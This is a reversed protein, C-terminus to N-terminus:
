LRPMTDPRVERAQAALRIAANPAGFGQYNRRQVIEFFFREEFIHTYVQFFEADGDRDYLIENARLAAITEPPLDYKAELDDYYNDPIDLFGAGRARMEAVSAFIDDCAFAIHQVGSGFFESIFRSSLTRTATSGNLIFRLSRDGNVIAQSQVLGRPDAIEMQPLRSFDILGAYFLLWSLMEEHPMSQAIHDVALLRDTAKDSAVAEFDVDWHRGHTDLFYLLSGGVGHIAPIELEGPGVPQTFTRTKLSQARAMARDASDVDLALACVGPGHTVYHSHAFSAPEFNIVLEIAGQSWRQVAKSRHQGTKRFGLQGFLNALSGAKDESVAFEVFGIGHSKVRPEFRPEAAAPMKGVLDDQLLLLSRMGDLATRPASGARFQDNFIELSLPGSYGTAAVAEMFEGVPLDGQGPFSRFHRSWSLVDLELKPADALQVLFIKDGPIARIANTPLAPALAHFSDLIVGIAKHDARRVIEWADRYDHVHRGWALAEYGVRLGRKAAHEGLEHFDAAARDIGGLSAPSVSSCILLLDTGLEQMLDFKREARIFNRARQPEPMGEFDRFPQYACITLGLDRCMQGIERPRMGFAVLDNEFIEVEDFGAAAIAKLKEDLAGSISVTAISRKNM